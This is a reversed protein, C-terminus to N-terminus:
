SEGTVARRRMMLLYHPCGGGVHQNLLPASNASARCARSRAVRGRAVSPVTTGAGTKDTHMRIPRM